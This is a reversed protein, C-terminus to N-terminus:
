SPAAAARRRSVRTSPSASGPPVPRVNSQDSTRGTRSPVDNTMRAPPSVGSFTARPWRWRAGPRRHVDGAAHLGRRALLVRGLHAREDVRHPSPSSVRRSPVSRGRRRGSRARSGSPAAARAPPPRRRRAARGRRGRGLERRAQAVEHAPGRREGVGRPEGSVSPQRTQSLRSSRQWVPACLILLAIPWARSTFRMPLLRTTASVPAPGARRPWRWRTRAARGRTRRRCPCPPCPGGPGSRGACAGAPPPPARPPCGARARQLVRDVLGHAVPGGVHAGRVVQQARHQARMRVRHHHAIELGDDAVLRARLDSPWHPARGSTSTAQM